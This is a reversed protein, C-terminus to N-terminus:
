QKVSKFHNLKWLKCSMISFVHQLVRKVLEKVYRVKGERNKDSKLCSIISFYTTSDIKCSGEYM